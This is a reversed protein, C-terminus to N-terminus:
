GQRAAADLIAATSSTGIRTAGAAIMREADVLTRIGGSAKVGMAHPVHRRMLAIDTERAGHSGFGTSTKVFAVGVESAIGCLHVIQSEDLYCTEFIVKLLAGRAAVAENIAGIEDAAADWSGGKVWGINVVMDVESAGDEVARIAEHIKAATVSNGHPFGVVACTKVGSGALRRAVAKVASSPVCFAATGYTSAIDCGATFDGEAAAPHLVAHDIQKALAVVAQKNSIEKM